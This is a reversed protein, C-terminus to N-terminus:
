APACLRRFPPPPPSCRRARPTWSRRTSTGRLATCPSARWAWIASTRARRSPAGCGVDCLELKKESGRTVGRVMNALHARTAGARMRALGEADFRIQLKKDTQVVSVGATLPLSLSGKAGKITVADAAITATVGAPLEVPAKAIRSM